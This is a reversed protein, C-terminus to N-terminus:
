TVEVEIFELKEQENLTESFADTPKPRMLNNRCFSQYGEIDYSAKGDRNVGASLNNQIDKRAWNLITAYHSKYGKGTSAMYASLNEIKEAYSEGFKERLKDVEESTLYVNQFTGFLESEDEWMRKKLFTAPYPLNQRNKCREIWSIMKDMVERSMPNIKGFARVAAPRNDQKPYANWFELFLIDNEDKPPIDADASLPLNEKKINKEKKHKTKNENLKTKSLRLGSTNICPKPNTSDYIDVCPVVRPDSKELELELEVSVRDDKEKTKKNEQSLPLIECIASKPGGVKEFTILGIQKLKNKAIFIQDRNLGSYVKLVDIRLAFKRPWRLENAYMLIAHYLSIELHGLENAKIFNGFMQIEKVYNIKKLEM